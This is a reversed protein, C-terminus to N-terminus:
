SMQKVKDCFVALRKKLYARRSDLRKYDANDFELISQKIMKTTDRLLTSGIDLVLQLFIYNSSPDNDAETVHMALSRVRDAVFHVYKEEIM